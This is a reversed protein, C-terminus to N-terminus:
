LVYIRGTLWDPWDREFFPRSSEDFERNRRTSVIMTAGELRVIIQETKHEEREQRFRFEELPGHRTQPAIEGNSACIARAGRSGGGQRVYHDLATLVAESALAMQQWQVARVAEGTHGHSIGQERIAANLTRANQLATEIGEPNCFIGAEDSMRNQVEARASKVSISSDARLISLLGAMERAALGDPDTM